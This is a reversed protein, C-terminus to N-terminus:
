ALSTGRRTSSCWGASLTFPCDITALHRIVSWQHIGLHKNWCITVWNAKAAEACEWKVKDYPYSEEAAVMDPRQLVWVAVINETTVTLIAVGARARQAVAPNKLANEGVLYVKKNAAQGLTKKITVTRVDFWGLAPDPHTRFIDDEGPTGVRIVQAQKTVRVPESKTPDRRAKLLRERVDVPLREFGPIDTALPEGNTEIPAVTSSEVPPAAGDNVPGDSPAPPQQPGTGSSVINADAKPRDSATRRTM